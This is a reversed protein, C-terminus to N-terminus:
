VELGQHIKFMMYSGTFGMLIIGYAITLGAQWDFWALTQYLMAVLTLTLALTTFGLVKLLLKLM